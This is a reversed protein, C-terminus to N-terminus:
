EGKGEQTLAQDVQQRLSTVHHADEETTMTQAHFLGISGHRMPHRVEVCMSVLWDMRIKDREAAELKAQTDSLQTRLQAIIYADNGPCETPTYAPDDPVVVANCPVDPQHGVNCKKCIQGM